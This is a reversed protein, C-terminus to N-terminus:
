SDGSRRMEAANEEPFFLAEIDHSESWDLLKDIATLLHELHEQLATDNHTKLAVELAKSARKLPPVGTYCSAGHLKHVFELAQMLQEKEFAQIIETKDQELKNLLMTLLEHALDAKQNSLKLCLQLDVPRPSSSDFLQDVLEEQTAAPSLAAVPSLAATPLNSGAASDASADAHNLYCDQCWSQIIQFLQVENIPKTLHDNLGAKLLRQREEAMAHATLAIIPVNALEETPLARIHETTAIGDMEPMQIDMFVLDFREEQVKKLAEIGSSAQTVQVGMDSLLVSLLKLNAANDDVALIKARRKLGSDPLVNRESTPKSVIENACLKRLMRHLKTGAVPKSLLYLNDNSSIEAVPSSGPSLLITPKNLHESLISANKSPEDQFQKLSLGAIALDVSVRSTIQNLQETSIENDNSLCHVQVQWSELLHKLSLQLVPNSEYLIVHKGQLANNSLEYSPKVIKAKISFKFTSGKGPESELSIEGGMQEVLRKSIVLGLGTGGFERSTSTDAQTFANFINQQQQPSLGIGSDTISISLYAQDEKQDEQNVRVIINGYDTFKIANSVLNTIVQKIRLPDGTLDVPVDAYILLILELGKENAAPALMTLTEEILERLNITIHDLVLKGAEIKSFDLIDNIITLLGDSSQQITELYDHQQTSLESKLLLNTFGIIGNLPTRIEHSTNALFESKIRSAEVAEKRALDLEINQIEITELTERLDSTTQEVNNQMEDISLKIASSMDNIELGIETLEGGNTLDVKGKLEGNKIERIRAILHQLLSLAQNSVRLSFIGTGTLILLILISSVFLTQYIKLTYVNSSYEVSVWGTINDTTTLNGGFNIDSILNNNRIPTSFQVTTDTNIKISQAQYPSQGSDLAAKMRPGAHVLPLKDKNFLSVSRVGKEELAASAISQQLKLDDTQAAYQLMVALQQSTSSGREDIFEELEAIRTYSLYGGLLISIGISPLLSLLLIKNRISWNFM